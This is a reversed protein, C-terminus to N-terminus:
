SAPQLGPFLYNRRSGFDFDPKEWGIMKGPNLLGKPDAERKFALQVEDTQKMGGEELTYRHPNFIVCGMDEHIRMIEDLREETTFRVIPLGFCTINGDFRVFELHALVEDGFHAHVRSVLDLHNPYPYLVQLYTIGPDVRLGRLTTHNWSLEYAPPLGKTDEATDSRFLVEGGLRRTVALLPGLAHAAVMVLCIHRGDPIFRRHRLFYDQPIPAAIPSVLKLLLGDRNGIDDGYAAAREFSDFGVIVDIWDYAATLPIEVETIVGNTGYAHCVKQLDWGDLELLRPREEMTAVKLRLVNGIDRLGGWRISGVGGSGGGIFGGISATKLTSPHMRMEQGSSARAAVDIDHLIAGPEAVLRGPSIKLVRNMEALNMVVGGALPMAQGYNGTGTGRVTVPVDHRYCTELVRLIEAESRPSVVLDATVHDLERKLVPSYWFFDRSKQKVLAPNDEIKLGELATKLAAIDRM